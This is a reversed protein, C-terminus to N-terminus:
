RHYGNNQTMSCKRFRTLTNNLMYSKQIGNIFDIWYVKKKIDHFKVLSHVVKEFVLFMIEQSM